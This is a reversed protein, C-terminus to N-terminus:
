PKKSKDNFNKLFGDKFGEGNILPDLQVDLNVAVLMRVGSPSLPALVECSVM